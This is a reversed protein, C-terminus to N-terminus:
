DHVAQGTTTPTTTEVHETVLIWGRPTLRVQGDGFAVLDAKRLGRLVGKATDPSDDFLSSPTATGRLSYLKYLARVAPSPLNLTRVARRIEDYTQRLHRGLLQQKRAPNVSLDLSVVTGDRVYQIGIVMQPDGLLERESRSFHVIRELDIGFPYAIGTCGVKGPTVRLTGIDFTEGTVRGGVETPHCVAVELGDLLWRYCLGAYKELTDRTGDVFLVERRDHRDFGVTLVTGTFFDAAAQPSSAIRVDFVDSQGISLDRVESEVRLEGDGLTIDAAVPETHVRECYVTASLEIQSPM